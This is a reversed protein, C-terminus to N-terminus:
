KEKPLLDKFDGTKKTWVGVISLRFNAMKHGFLKLLKCQEPSLVEGETCIQLSVDANGTRVWCMSVRCVVRSRM